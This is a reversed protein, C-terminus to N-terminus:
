YHGKQPLTATMAKGQRGVPQRQSHEDIKYKTNASLTLVSRFDVSDVLLLVSLRVGKGNAKPNGVSREHIKEPQSKTLDRKM